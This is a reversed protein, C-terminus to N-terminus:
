QKIKIMGIQDRFIIARMNDHEDYLIFQKEKSTAIHYHLAKYERESLEISAGGAFVEYTM